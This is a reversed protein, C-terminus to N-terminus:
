ADPTLIHDVHLRHLKGKVPRGSVYPRVFLVGQADWGHVVAYLAGRAFLDSAPHLRITTGVSVDFAPVGGEVAVIHAPRSIHLKGKTRM